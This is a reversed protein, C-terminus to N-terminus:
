VVKIEKIKFYRNVIDENNRLNKAARGILLGRSKLDPATIKIVDEEQEIKNIKVPYCLNKVFQILNTNFEVIKFEKNKLLSKLRQINAGKKGIAIGIQAPQVVFYIVEEIIFCDKLKSRTLTEFM